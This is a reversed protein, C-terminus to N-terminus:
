RYSMASRMALDYWRAHYEADFHYRHLDILGVHHWLDLQEAVWRGDWRGSM